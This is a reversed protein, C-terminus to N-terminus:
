DGGEFFLADRKERVVRLWSSRGRMTNDLPPLVQQIQGGRHMRGSGAVAEVWVCRMTPVVECGGNARVGGCPGNRIEKPCNMPCSMGTSNLVCKGCMQCDFLAGKIKSETWTVPGAVRRYGIKLWLPHLVLLWKEFHDYLWELFRARRVSWLRISYM